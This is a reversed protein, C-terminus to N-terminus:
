RAERRLCGAPHARVERTGDHRTTHQRILPRPQRDSPLDSDTQRTTQTQPTATSTTATPSTTRAHGNPGSSASACTAGRSRGFHRTPKLTGLPVQLADPHSRATLLLTHDAVTVGLRPGDRAVARRPSRAIFHVILAIQPISHTSRTRDELQRPVSDIAVLSSDTTGTFNGYSAAASGSCCGVSGSSAMRPSAVLM